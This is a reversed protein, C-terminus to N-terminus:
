NRRGHNSKKSIVFYRGDEDKAIYDGEYARIHYINGNSYVDFELMALSIIHNIYNDFGDFDKKGFCFEICEKASKKNLNFQCSKYRLDM